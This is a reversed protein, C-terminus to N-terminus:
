TCRQIWWLFRDVPRRSYTATALVFLRLLSNPCFRYALLIYDFYRHRFSRPWRWHLLSVMRQLIIHHLLLRARLVCCLTPSSKPVPSNISRNGSCSYYQLISHLYIRYWGLDSSRVRFDYRHWETWWASSTFEFELLRALHLCPLSLQGAFYGFVDGATASGASM